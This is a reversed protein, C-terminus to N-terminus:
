LPCPNRRSVASIKPSVSYGGAGAQVLHAHRHFAYSLFRSGALIGGVMLDVLPAAPESRHQYQPKEPLGRAFVAKAM